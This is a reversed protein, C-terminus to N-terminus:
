EEDYVPTDPPYLYIIYLFVIISLSFLPYHFSLGVSICIMVFGTFLKLMFFNIFRNSLKPDVLRHNHVAYLCVLFVTFVPLLSGICYTTIAANKYVPDMVFDGLLAIPFPLFAITMLFLVNLMNFVHNTKKVFSFLWHHNTWYTGLSIFGLIYSFYNPWLEILYKYLGGAKVVEEHEPIKIELILLTIAIAFVGDSFMELRDTKSQENRKKMRM